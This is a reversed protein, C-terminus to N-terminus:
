GIGVGPVRVPDAPRSGPEEPAPIVDVVAPRKVNSALPLRRANALQRPMEGSAEARQGPRPESTVRSGCCLSRMTGGDDRLYGTYISASVQELRLPFPFCCKTNTARFTLRLAGRGATGILRLLTHITTNTLDFCHTYQVHTITPFIAPTQKSRTSRSM